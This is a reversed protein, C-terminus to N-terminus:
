KLRGMYIAEDQLLRPKFAPTATESSHPDEQDRVHDSDVLCHVMFTTVDSTAGRSFSVINRLMQAVDLGRITESHDKLIQLFILIM